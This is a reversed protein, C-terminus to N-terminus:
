QYYEIPNVQLCYSENQYNQPYFYQPLYTSQIGYYSNYSPLSHLSQTDQNNGIENGIIQIQQQPQYQLYSINLGNEIQPIVQTIIPSQIQQEQQNGIIFQTTNVTTSTINSGTDAVPKFLSFANEDIILQPFRELPFTDRTLRIIMEKGIMEEMVKSFELGITELTEIPYEQGTPTKLMSIKVLKETKTSKKTQKIHFSFGHKQLLYLLGNNIQAEKSRNYQKNDMTKTDVPEEKMVTRIFVDSYKCLSIEDYLTGNLNISDPLYMKVTAQSRKSKRYTVTANMHTIFFLGLSNTMCSENSRSMRKRDRAM